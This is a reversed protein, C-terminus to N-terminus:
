RSRAPAAQIAKRGRPSSELVMAYERKIAEYCECSADELAERHRITIKGRVYHILGAKQLMGAAISVTPRRVGLMQAIFEQTLFFSDEEVRDHTMLLWRALREDVPHARNCAAGQAMQAMLALAYRMTLDRLAPESVILQHFAAGDVRTAMGEVQVFARETGRDAGLAAPLGVMGESGITAVEVPMGPLPKTLSAVGRHPFYVYRIRKEVDYLVQKQKLPVTTAIPELRARVADPLARLLANRDAGPSRRDLDTGNRPM